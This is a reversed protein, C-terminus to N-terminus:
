TQVLNMGMVPLVRKVSVPLAMVKRLVFLMLLVPIEEMHVSRSMTVSPSVMVVTDPTANVNMVALSTEAPPTLTVPTTVASMLTWVHELRLM